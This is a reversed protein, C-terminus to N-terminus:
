KSSRQKKLMTKPLYDDGKCLVQGAGLTRINAFRACPSSADYQNGWICIDSPNNCKNTPPPVCSPVGDYLIESLVEKQAGNTGPGKCLPMKLQQFLPYLQDLLPHKEKHCGSQSLSNNTLEVKTPNPHFHPPLHEGPATTNYGALMISMLNHQYIHNKEVRAHHIAGIFLGLGSPLKSLSSDPRAFNRFNNNFIRNGSILFARSYPKSLCPISFFMVGVTNERVVNREVNAYSTNELEIGIVNHFVENNRITVFKSQGVYIGSDSAGSVKSHEITVHTSRVPYIGYAGNNPHPVGTWRVHVNHVSLDCVLHSRIGDGKTDEVTMHSLTSHPALVQIGANGELQNKFSLITKGIGAGRLHIHRQGISLSRRLHFRGAPLHLITSPKATLLAKQIVQYPDEGRQIRVFVTNEHLKALTRCAKKPRASLPTVSSLALMFMIWMGVPLLVFRVKSRFMLRQM